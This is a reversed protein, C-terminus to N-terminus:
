RCGWDSSRTLRSYTITVPSLDGIAPVQKKEEGGSPPHGTPAFENLSDVMFSRYVSTVFRMM